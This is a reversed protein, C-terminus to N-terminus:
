SSEKQDRTNSKQAHDNWLPLVDSSLTLTLIPPQIDFDLKTSVLDHDIKVVDFICYFTTIHCVIDHIIKKTANERPDWSICPNCGHLQHVCQAYNIHFLPQLPNSLKHIPFHHLSLGMVDEWECIIYPVLLKVMTPWNCLCGNSLWHPKKSM